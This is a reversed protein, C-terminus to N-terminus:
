PIKEMPMEFQPSWWVVCEETLIGVIGWLHEYTCEFFQQRDKDYRNRLRKRLEKLMATGFPISEHCVEDHVEQCETRIINCLHQFQSDAKKFEDKNLWQTLLYETSFKHSKALEINALSIEGAIMKLEMKRMETSLTPLSLQNHNKLLINSSSPSVLLIDSKFIELVQNLTIKKRQITLNEQEQESNKLLVIYEQKPPSQTLSSAQFMADILMDTVTLVQHHSLNQVQSCSTLARFLRSHIDDLGPSNELIVKKLTNVILINDIQTLRALKSLLQSLYKNLIADEPSSELVIYLLYQLNSSNKREHWFGCNAAIVYKDFDEPFKTELNIFRKLSNLIEDDLSKFPEKGAARTKVQIGIFKGDTRKVLVDEWHECFLYDIKPEDELMALSKLAAYTAQYRFRRQTDDGPDSKDTSNEPSIARNVM